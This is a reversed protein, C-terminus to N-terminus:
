TYPGTTSGQLDESTYSWANKVEACSPPLHNAECGSWKVGSSLVGYGNGLPSSPGEYNDPISGLDDMEYCEWQVGFM